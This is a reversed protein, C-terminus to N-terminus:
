VSQGEGRILAQEAAISYAPPGLGSLISEIVISRANSNVIAFLDPGYFGSLSHWPRIEVDGIVISNTDADNAIDAPIGDVDAARRPSGAQLYLDFAALRRVFEQTEDDTLPIRVHRFDGIDEVWHDAYIAGERELTRLDDFHSQQLAPFERGFAVFPIRESRMGLDEDYPDVLRPM